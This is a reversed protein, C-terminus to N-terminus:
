SMPSTLLQYAQTISSVTFVNASAPAKGRKDATSPVLVMQLGAQRAALVKLRVEGVPGIRGDSTVTGTIVRSRPIAEGKAMAGVTLGVMASLSDGEIILGSDVVSLGVNWSDPSLGLVRATRVIAQVVAAQTESSFRSPGTLFHVDLGKVDDRQSFLVMVYTVSGTPNAGISVTLVPIYQERPSDQAWAGQSFVPLFFLILFLVVRGMMALPGIGCGFVQHCGKWNANKENM